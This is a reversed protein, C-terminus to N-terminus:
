LPHVVSVVQRARQALEQDWTVLPLRLVDATAAYVADAGKLRLQAALAAARYLLPLDVPMVQLGPTVLLRKVADLGEDPIGSIRAVAGAVEALTLAPVVLRARARVKEEIWRLSTAHNVDTRIARSVWLNADVIM